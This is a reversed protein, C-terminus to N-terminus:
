TDGRRLRRARAAPPVCELAQVFRNLRTERDRWDYDSHWYQCMDRIWSLPAGQSWDEVLEKDPWRTQELRRHLDDLVQDPVSIRFPRVAADDSMEAVM